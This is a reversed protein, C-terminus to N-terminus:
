VVGRGVCGEVWRCLALFLMRGEEPFVFVVGAAGAGHGDARTESEKGRRGRTQLRVRGM